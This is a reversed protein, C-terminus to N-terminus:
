GDMKRGRTHANNQHLVLATVDGDDNREFTVTAEVVRYFFENEAAPWLRLKTQNTAQAMLRNGERTVQIRFMPALEYTGTYADLAENTMEIPKRFRPLDIKKGRLALLVDRGLRDVQGTATNSLVVVARKADPDIVLFSHYGGTAGSHMRVRGPGAHWGLGVGAFDAGEKRWHIQQAVKLAKGLPSEDPSLNARAFKMMDNVSSRIAGAGQLTSFRWRKTPLGDATYPPAAKRVAAAPILTHTSQMGLPKTIRSRLLAAYTHKSRLGLAHGLLGAGLNSYEYQAGPERRLRHYSLFGYLREVTYHEYPREPDPPDFNAPMRPLASTHTSLEVLRIQRKGDDTARSPVIVGTPLLDAVPEDLKVVGEEALAALMIGTFVKSVSGIEYITDGDPTEAKQASFRGYGIVAEDTDDIVGIVAGMLVGSDVYVKAIPDIMDKISVAEPEARAPSALLPVCVLLLLTRRM